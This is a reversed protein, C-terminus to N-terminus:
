DAVEEIRPAFRAVDSYLFGEEETSVSIRAPNKLLKTYVPRLFTRYRGNLDNIELYAVYPSIEGLLDRTIQKTTVDVLTENLSPGGGMSVMGGSDAMSMLTEKRQYHIDGSLKEIEEQTYADDLKFVATVYRSATLQALRDKETPLRQM